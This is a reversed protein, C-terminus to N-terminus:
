DMGNARPLKKMSTKNDADPRRDIPFLSGDELLPDLYSLPGNSGMGECCSMGLVAPVTSGSGRTVEGTTDGGKRPKTSFISARGAGTDLANFVTESSTTTAKGRRGTPSSDIVVVLLPPSLGMRGSRARYMGSIRSGVLNESVRVNVSSDNCRKSKLRNTHWHQARECTPHTVRTCTM